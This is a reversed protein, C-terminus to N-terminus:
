EIELSLDSAMVSHTLAGVSIWDVGTEAYRRVSDLTIGGSAELLIKEDRSRALAVAERVGEPPMNDLLIIDPSEELALQLEDLTTVEVELFRAKDRAARAKAVAARVGGALRIHNEKILIADNLGFRHNHAGGVTVAYKEFTRLGPTTKRTDLIRAGTGAVADVYQRALTAIGCLRQLLNLAVREGSLMARARGRITAPVDGAKLLDGDRWPGSASLKPDLLRFVELAVDIGALVLPTKAIFRGVAQRDPPVIAVTTVDDGGMDEVLFQELLRRHSTTNFVSATYMM